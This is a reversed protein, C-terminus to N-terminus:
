KLPPAHAPPPASSFPSSEPARDWSGSTMAQAWPLCKVSLGLSRTRLLKENQRGKADLVSM